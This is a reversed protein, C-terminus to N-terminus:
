YLITFNLFLILFCVFLFFFWVWSFSICFAFRNDSSAKFIAWFILFAFTLPSFSFCVWRFSSNWLIGLLSLVTKLTFLSFFYLFVIFHPFCSIGERFNSIGLSCKLCTWNLETAWDHGVRQSGMFLLVRNKDMVLEQLETLSVDMLDTIGDLWRMRQRGRRRRGGIGELILTKELSDARRM